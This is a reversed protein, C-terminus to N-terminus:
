LDSSRLKSLTEAWVYRVASRAAFRMPFRRNYATSIRRVRPATSGDSRWIGGIRALLRLSDFTIM